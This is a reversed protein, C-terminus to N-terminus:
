KREADLSKVLTKKMIVPMMDIICSIVPYISEPLEQEIVAARQCIQDIGRKKGDNAKLRQMPM